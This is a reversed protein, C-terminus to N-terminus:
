CAWFRGKSSELERISTEGDKAIEQVRWGEKAYKRKIRFDNKVM